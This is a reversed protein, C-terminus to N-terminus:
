RVALRHSFSTAFSAARFLSCIAASPLPRAMSLLLRRFTPARISAVRPQKPETSLLTTTTAQFQLQQVSSAINACLTTPAPSLRTSTPVRSCRQLHICMTWQEQKPLLPQLVTSKSARTTRRSLVALPLSTALMGNTSLLRRATTYSFRAARTPSCM